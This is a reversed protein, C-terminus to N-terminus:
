SGNFDLGVIGEAPDCMWGVGKLRNWHAQYFAIADAVIVSPVVLVVAAAIM